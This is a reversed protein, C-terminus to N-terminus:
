QDRTTGSVVEIEFTPNLVCWCRLSSRWSPKVQGRDNCDRRSHSRKLRHSCIRTVSQSGEMAEPMAEDEVLPDGSGEVYGGRTDLVVFAVTDLRGLTGGKCDAGCAGHQVATRTQIAELLKAGRGETRRWPEVKNWVTGTTRQVVRSSTAVVM